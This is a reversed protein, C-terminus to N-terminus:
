DSIFSMEQFISALTSTASPAASSSGPSRYELTTYPPNRVSLGAEACTKPAIKESDIGLTAALLQAAELYTVDQDGSLQYIGSRFNVALALLERTVLSLEIPSFVLDSMPSITLGTRLDARWKQFLPLRPHVVKTLRVVAVKEFEKRLLKEMGAKQRGYATQPAVPADVGIRPSSGDFVLNTSLFVLATGSTALNKALRFTQEVNIKFTGPFDDECQRLNTAAACFYAVRSPVSFDAVSEERALDLFVVKKREHEQRRSTGTWHIGQQTAREALASGILGDVGVILIDDDM